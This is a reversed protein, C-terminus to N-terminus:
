ASGLGVAGHGEQGHVVGRMQPQAGQDGLAECRSADAFQFGANQFQGPLM